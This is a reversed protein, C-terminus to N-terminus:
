IWANGKDIYHVNRRTASMYEYSNTAKNSQIKHKSLQGCQFYKQLRVSRCKKIFIVLLAVFFFWFLLKNIYDAVSFICGVLHLINQKSTHTYRKRGREREREAHALM